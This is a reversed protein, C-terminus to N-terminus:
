KMNDTLTSYNPQQATRPDVWKPPKRDQANNDNWQEITYVYNSKGVGSSYQAESRIQSMFDNLAIRMKRSLNDVYPGHKFYANRRIEVCTHFGKGRDREKRNRGDEDFVHFHPVTGENSRIYVYYKGSTGPKGIEGMESVIDGVVFSGITTGDDMESEHIVSDNGESECLSAWHNICEKMVDEKM